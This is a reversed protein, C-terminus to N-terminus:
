EDRDRVTISLAVAMRPALDLMQGTDLIAGSLGDVTRLGAINSSRFDVQAMECREFTADTLDCNEFAVSKLTCAFFDAGKLDCNSFLVSELKGFRFSCLDMRCDKFSVDGLRGEPSAFGTMRCETLAVRQGSWGSWAANSLDCNTLEVDRFDPQDIRSNRLGMRALQSAEAILNSVHLDEAIGSITVGHFTAGPGTSFGGADLPELTKPLRPSQVKM